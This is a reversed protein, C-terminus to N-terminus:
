SIWEQPPWSGFLRKYAYGVWGPKFDKSQQIRQLRKLESRRREESAAAAASRDVVFSTQKCSRCKVKIELDNHTSMRVASSGCKDCKREPKKFEVLQDETEALIGRYMVTQVQLCSPCEAQTVPRLAGCNECRVVPSDDREIENRDKKRRDDLTWVREDTPLGHDHVCGAHDIVTAYTQDGYPRMVRGVQQLFRTLSKTPRALVVCGLSPLDYGEVLVDVNCVIRTENSALRQLIADRESDKMSGDLHEAPVGAEQFRRVLDKSNAVSAAFVVTRRDEGLRYWHDIINGCLAESGMISAVSERDYDGQKIRVESLDPLDPAYIRLPLLFGEDVLQQVQVTAVLDEYMHGMGRGDLRWPTATLGLVLAGPYDEIAEQYMPALCRHTEDIIVVQADPIPRSRVKGTSKCNECEVHVADKPVDSIGFVEDKLRQKEAKRKDKCVPCSRKSVLTQVSAVQVPLNPRHRWHNSKIIGHDVGIEDLTKSCQEILEKRHALFLVRNGKSVAGEIISSAMVTKGSGTPAVLVIRRKGKTWLVRIQDIAKSQYPRPEYKM